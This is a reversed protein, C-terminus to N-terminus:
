RDGKAEDRDVDKTEEGRADEEDRFLVTGTERGSGARVGENGGDRGSRGNAVMDWDIAGGIRPLKLIFAFFGTFIISGGM